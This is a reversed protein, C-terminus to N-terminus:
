LVINVISDAYISAGGAEYSGAPSVDREREGEFLDSFAEEEPANRREGAVSVDFAAAQYGNQQLATELHGLNEEMIQKVTNNDVIIKGVIHNDDLNM